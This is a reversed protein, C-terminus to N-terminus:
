RFPIQTAANYLKIIYKANKLFKVSPRRNQIRPNVVCLLVNMEVSSAMRQSPSDNHPRRTDVIVCVNKYMFIYRKHITLAHPHSVMDNCPETQHSKLMRRFRLTSDESMKATRMLTKHNLVNRNLNQFTKGNEHM